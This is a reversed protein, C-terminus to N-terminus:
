WGYHADVASQIALGFARDDDTDGEVYEIEAELDNKFRNISEGFSRQLAKWADTNEIKTQLDYNPAGENVVDNFRKIKKM